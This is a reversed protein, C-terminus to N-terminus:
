RLNLGQNQGYLKLKVMFSELFRLELKNNIIKLNGSPLTFYSTTRLLLEKYEYSQNPLKLRYDDTSSYKFSVIGNSFVLNSCKPILLDDKISSYLM